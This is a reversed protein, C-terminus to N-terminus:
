RRTCVICDSRAGRNVGRECCVVLDCGVQSREGVVCRVGTWAEAYVRRKVSIQSGEIEM